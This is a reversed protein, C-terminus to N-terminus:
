TVAYVPRDSRSSSGQGAAAVAAKTLATTLCHQQKTFRLSRLNPGRELVTECRNLLQQSLCSVFLGHHQRDAAAGAAAAADQLCRVHVAGTGAAQLCCCHLRRSSCCLRSCCCCSTSPACTKVHGAQCWMHGSMCSSHLDRSLLVPPMHQKHIWTNYMNQQLPAQSNWLAGHMISKQQAQTRTSTVLLLMGGLM